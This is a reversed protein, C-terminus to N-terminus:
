KSAPPATGVDRLGHVEADYQGLYTEAGQRDGQLDCARAMQLLLPARDAPAEARAIGYRYFPMAQDPRGMTLWVNGSVLATEAMRTQHAAAQGQAALGAVPVDDSLRLRYVDLISVANDLTFSGRLLVKLHRPPHFELSPRDDTIVSAGRCYERVTRPGLAHLQLLDQPLPLRLAALAQALPPEQYAKVLDPWPVAVPADKSAVILGQGSHLWLTTEPFVEQVTRLIAGAEPRTVLHFPLWQVLLGGPNLRAKALAYYEKSYLNVVGAQTPPMPEATIIDYAERTTELFHRGDDQILRARPDAFVRHNVAAFKPAFELVSRNLEVADVTAGPHQLAAGATSGTGFCIVLVRPGAPGSPKWLLIPLHSMMPMYAAREGDTSAEFGNIRLSLVGGTTRVVAVSATVDDRAAVVAMAPGQVFGQLDFPIPGPLQLLFAAAAAGAVGTALIKWAKSPGPILLGISAQLIALALLCGKLTLGPIVLYGVLLSGLIAGTTNVALASGIRRGARGFDDVLLRMGLPFVMGMLTAPLLMVLASGLFTVLLQLSGTYGLRAGWHTNWGPIRAAVPTLALAAAAALIQSWALLAMLDLRRELAAFALSGLALGLLFVTLILTFSYITSGFIFVLIRTWAVEYGMTLFGSLAVAAWVLNRGSPVTAAREPQRVIAEPEPGAGKVRSLLMAGLGVATNVLIALNLTGQMGLFRILWLGTAACGFLAGVLNVFYLLGLDRGFAADGRAVFRVLLPLTGGMLTTPVLLLATALALRVGLLALPGQGSHPVSAVYARGLAHLLWPQGLAFAGIGLELGAYYVLLHRGRDAVKGFLWAGLATGGMFVALVASVAPTTAGALLTLQRTWIIEYALASAGSGMFLACVWNRFLTPKPAPDSPL